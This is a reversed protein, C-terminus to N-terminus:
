LHQHGSNHKCNSLHCRPLLIVLQVVMNDAAAKGICADAHFALSAQFKVVAADLVPQADSTDQQVTRWRDKSEASFDDLIKNVVCFASRSNYDKDVVAMGVMGDRNYVHCFYDDQQVTQRRGTPTRKAVTRCLFVLMEKVTGRQFFGFTSLDAALGLMLADSNEGNWKFLAVATLKMAPCGIHYEVSM